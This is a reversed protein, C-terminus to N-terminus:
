AFGIAGANMFNWRTPIGLHKKKISREIAASTGLSPRLSHGCFKVVRKGEALDIRVGAAM